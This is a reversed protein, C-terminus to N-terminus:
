PKYKYEGADNYPNTLDIEREPGCENFLKKQNDDLSKYFAGQPRMKRVRACFLIDGYFEDDKLSQELIHFNEPTVEELDATGWYFVDNCIVFVKDQTIYLSSLIENMLKITKIFFNQKDILKSDPLEKGRLIKPFNVPSDDLPLHRNCGCCSYFLKYKQDQDEKKIWNIKSCVVCKIEYWTNM